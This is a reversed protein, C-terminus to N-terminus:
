KTVYFRELKLDQIIQYDSLNATGIKKIPIKSLLQKGKASHQLTLLAKQVANTVAKPVDPHVAVPHPPVAKTTHIIRLNDQYKQPQKHLTKQVGGGAFVSKLLINLYVSDHTKVYVPQVTIGFIDQLEQRMQLSAGLANPSPFAIRKGALQKVARINSDKRVVLIGQLQRGIDRILPLYGKEKHAMVLHYPNMYAFDFGGHLFTQEFNDISASGKFVFQYPTHTNLYDFIPQWIAQLKRAEFQPVVGFTYYPKDAYGEVSFVLCSCFFLLLYYNIKIDM